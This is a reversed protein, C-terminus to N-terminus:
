LTRVINTVIQLLIRGCTMTMQQLRAACSPPNFLKQGCNKAIYYKGLKLTGRCFPLDLALAGSVDFSLGFILPLSM